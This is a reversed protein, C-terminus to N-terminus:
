AEKGQGAVTKPRRVKRREEPDLGGWVGDHLGNDRAMQLCEAQVDCGRCYRKAEAIRALNQPTRSIRGARDTVPFFTEPNAGLCAAADMWSTDGEPTM